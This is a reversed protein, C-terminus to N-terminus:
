ELTTWNFHKMYHILSEMLKILQFLFLLIILLIQVHFLQLLDWIQLAISKVEPDQQALIANNDTSVVKLYEDGMLENAFMVRCLVGLQKNNELQQKQLDNVKKMGFNVDFTPVDNQPRPFMNLEQAREIERLNDLFTPTVPPAFPKSLKLPATTAKVIEDMTLGIKKIAERAWLKAGPKANIRLETAGKCKEEYRKDLEEPSPGDILPATGSSFVQLASQGPKEIRELENFIEGNRYINQYETRFEPDRMRSNFARNLASIVNVFRYDRMKPMKNGFEGQGKDPVYDRDYLPIKSRLSNYIQDISQLTNGPFFRKRGPVDDLNGGKEIKQVAEIMEKENQTPSNSLVFNDFANELRSIASIAAAKLGKSALNENAKIALKIDGFLKDAEIIDKPQRTVDSSFAGKPNSKIDTMYIRLVPELINTKVGSDTVGPTGGIATNSPDKAATTALINYELLLKNIQTDAEDVFNPDSISGSSIFERTAISRPDLALILKELQDDYVTFTEPNMNIPDFGFLTRREIPTIAGSVQIAKIATVLSRKQDPTMREPDVNQLVTGYNLIAAIALEFLFLLFLIITIIRM